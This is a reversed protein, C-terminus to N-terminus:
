SVSTLAIIMLRVEIHEYSHLDYPSQAIDSSHSEAYALTVHVAVDYPQRVHLCVLAIGPSRAAAVLTGRRLTEVM